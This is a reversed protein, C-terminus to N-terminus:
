VWGTTIIAVFAFVAFLALAVHDLWNWPTNKSLYCMLGTFAWWSNHTFYSFAIGGILIVFVGSFNFNVNPM